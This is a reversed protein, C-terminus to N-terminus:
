VAGVSRPKGDNDLCWCIFKSVTNYDIKYYKMNFKHCENSCRVSGPVEKPTFQNILFLIGFIVIFVIAWMIINFWLPEDEDSIHRNKM